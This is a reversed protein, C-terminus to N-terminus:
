RGIGKSMVAVDVGSVRARRELRWGCHQYFADQDSTYLQLETHGLEAAFKEAHSLLARAFGKGRYGTQVYLNTLWPAKDANISLSEFYVLSVCAIPQHQWFGVFTAPLQDSQHQALKEARAQASGSGSIKAWEQQQWDALM